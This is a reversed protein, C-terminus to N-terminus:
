FVWLRVNNFVVDAPQTSASSTLGINGSRSSPDTVTNGVSQLNVYLSITNGDAVVAIKNSNRPNFNQLTGKSLVKPTSSNNAWAQLQYAGNTAIKFYYFPGNSGNTVRFLIGGADGKLISMQVEIAFNAFNYGKGDPGEPNCAFFDNPDSNVESEIVHYTGGSFMCNLGNAGPIHDWGYTPNYSTLPDYITLTGGGPNPYPNPNGAFITATATANIQAPTLHSSPTPTTHSLLAFLGGGVIIIVLLALAAILIVPRKRQPPPPPSSPRAYPDQLPVRYPDSSYAPSTPGYAPSPPPPPPAGYSTSPLQSAGYQVSPVTPYYPDSPSESTLTGCNPCARAGPPLPAACSRCYM